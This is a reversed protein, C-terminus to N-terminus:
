RVQISCRPRLNLKSARSDLGSAMLDLGSERLDPVVAMLDLRPRLSPSKWLRNMALVFPLGGAAMASREPRHFPGPRPRLLWRRPYSVAHRGVRSGCAQLDEPSLRMSLHATGGPSVVHPLYVFLLYIPQPFFLFLYTTSPETSFSLMQLQSM